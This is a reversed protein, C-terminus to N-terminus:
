VGLQAVPYRSYWGGGSGALDAMDVLVGGGGGYGVGGGGYEVEEGALESM